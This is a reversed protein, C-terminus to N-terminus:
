GRISLKALVEDEEDAEKEGAHIPEQPLRAAAAATLGFDRALAVFDRRADRLLKAVPSAAQGKDTATIWGETYVQDALQEIDAHLRCCIAFADIRDSTLRGDAILTPANREWFGLATPVKAVSPPPALSTSETKAAPKPAAAGIQRARAVAAQSRKSNPDPLRGRRGMPKEM